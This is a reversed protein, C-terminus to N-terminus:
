MVTFISKKIYVIFSLQYNQVLILSCKILASAMPCCPYVSCQCSLTQSNWKSHWFITKNASFCVLLFLPVDMWTIKITFLLAASSMFLSLSAAMIFHPLLGSGQRGWQKLWLPSAKLGERRGKERRVLFVALIHRLSMDKGWIISNGAQLLLKFKVGRHRQASPDGSCHCLNAETCQASRHSGRGGGISGLYGGSPSPPPPPSHVRCTCRVSAVGRTKKWRKVTAVLREKVPITLGGIFRAVFSPYSESVNPVFLVDTDPM